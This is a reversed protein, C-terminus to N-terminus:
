EGRIFSDVPSSIIRGLRLVRESLSAEVSFAKLIGKTDHVRVPPSTVNPGDFPVVYPLESLKPEKTTEHSKSTVRSIIM